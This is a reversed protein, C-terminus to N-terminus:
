GNIGQQCFTRSGLSRFVILGGLVRDVLRSFLGSFFQLIGALFVVAVCWSCCAPTVGARDGQHGGPPRGDRAEDGGDEGRKERGASRDPPHGDQDGPHHGRHDDLVADGDGRSRRRRGHHGLRLAVLGSNGAGGGAGRGAGCAISRIPMLIAYHTIRQM